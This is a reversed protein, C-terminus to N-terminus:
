HLGGLLPATTTPSQDEDQSGFLASPAAMMLSALMAAVIVFLILLQSWYPSAWRLFAPLNAGHPRASHAERVGRNLSAWGIGHAPCSAHKTTFCFNGQHANSVM